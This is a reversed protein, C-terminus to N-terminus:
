WKQAKLQAFLPVLAVYFLHPIAALAYLHCFNREQLRKQGANLFRLDTLAKLLLVPGELPLQTKM